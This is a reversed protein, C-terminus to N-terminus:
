RREKLGLWLNFELSIGAFPQIFTNSSSINNAPEVNLMVAGVNLRFVQFMKYGLGAYIPLGILDGTVRDGQSSEFNTLFIGTSFSANGLFKTFAKNGLPLSLGVYPGHLYETTPLERKLPITAYGINLPLVNARKETPYNSITRIDVLALLSKDLYQSSENQVLQILEQIYQEAYAAKANDERNRGLVNFRARRLKLREKQDLKQRVIESFGQFERGLFHQYDRLGDNVIQNMQSLLVPDSHNTKIGNSKVEMNARIYAELNRHLATMVKQMQQEEARGYFFFEFDYRENNRLPNSIFLEYESVEFDFPKKWEYFIARNENKGARNVSVKVMEIGSPLRGKVFFPEESPIPNSNNLENALVNYYISKIQGFSLLPLISLFILLLSQYHYKYKLM